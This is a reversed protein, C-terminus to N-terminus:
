WPVSGTVSLTASGGTQPSADHLFGIEQGVMDTNLDLARGARSAMSAHHEGANDRCANAKVEAGKLARLAVVNV